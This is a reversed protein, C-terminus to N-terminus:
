VEPLAWRVRFGDDQNRLAALKDPNRILFLTPVEGQVVEPVM